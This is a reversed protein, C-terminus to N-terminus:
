AVPSRRSLYFGDCAEGAMAPTAMAPMLTAHGLVHRLGHGLRVHVPRQRVSGRVSDRWGLWANLCSAVTAVIVTGIATIAIAPTSAITTFTKM